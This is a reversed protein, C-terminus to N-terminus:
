AADATWAELLQDVWLYDIRYDVQRSSAPSVAMFPRCCNSTGVAKAPAKTKQSRARGVENLQPVAPARGKDYVNAKM